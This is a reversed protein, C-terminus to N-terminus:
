GPGRVTAGQSGTDDLERCFDQIAAVAEPSKSVDAHDSGSVELFTAGPIAEATARGLRSPIALDGTFHVALTPVRIEPLLARVDTAKMFEMLQRMSDRSSLLKEVARWTDDDVQDRTLSPFLVDRMVGRGWQHHVMDLAEGSIGIPYDEGQLFRASTGVLILGRVREPYTHAFQICMPGGESLGVLVADDLGAANMVAEIDEVRDELSPSRLCPDSLGQGRKDFVTVNGVVALSELTNRFTPLNAHVHLHSVIGPAFVIPVGGEGIREYAIRVGGAEAFHIPYPSPRVLDEYHLKEPSSSIDPAPVSEATGARMRRAAFVMPSIIVGAVAVLAAIGSLLSENAAIWAGINELFGM